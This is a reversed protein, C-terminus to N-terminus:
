TYWYINESRLAPWGNGWVNTQLGGSLVMPQNSNPATLNARAISVGVDFHQMYVQAMQPDEQYQFCRAVVFNLLIIHFEDNLDVTQGTDTLWTYSPQRFGRIELSYVNDPKPWLQLQGAWLSYYTPIGPTDTTGNWYKEAVFNDIYILQNGGNTENTVSILERIDSFTLGAVASPLTRDFGTSYGRQDVVTNLTYSSQFWPWRTWLTVIRQYGERIFADVLDQSIDDNAGNGIHLCSIDSVLNRLQTINLSM